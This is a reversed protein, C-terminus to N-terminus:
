KSHWARICLKAGSCSYELTALRTAASSLARGFPMFPLPAPPYMMRADTLEVM